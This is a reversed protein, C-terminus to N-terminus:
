SMAYKVKTKTPLALATSAHLVMLVNTPSTASLELPSSQFALTTPQPGHNASYVQKAHILSPSQHLTFKASIVTPVPAATNPSKVVSQNLSVNSVLLATTEM